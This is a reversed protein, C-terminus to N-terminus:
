VKIEGIVTVAKCRVKGEQCTIIDVTLTGFQIHADGYVRANGCVRAKGSVRAKGFVRAQDSVQALGFVEAQRGVYAHIEVYASNAVWGGGNPHTHAPVPGDGFDFLDVRNM